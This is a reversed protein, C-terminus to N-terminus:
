GPVVAINPPFVRAATILSLFVNVSVVGASVGPACCNTRVFGSPSLTESSAANTACYDEKVTENYGEDLCQTATNVDESSRLGCAFLLDRVGCFARPNPIVAAHFCLFDVFGYQTWLFGCM